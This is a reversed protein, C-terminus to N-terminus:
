SACGNGVTPPMWVDGELLTVPDIAAELTALDDAHMAMAVATHAADRDHPTLFDDALDVIARMATPYIEFATREAAADFPWIAFGESRLRALLPMGRVSGAGVQGNGVLQFISKAPFGANRLRLECARYRQEVPVDCRERWFPPEVRLWSEGERAALAWVEDITTCRHARAFWAPFGFSFDLGVLMPGDDRILDVVTEDRTRGGEIM